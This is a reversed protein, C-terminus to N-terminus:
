SNTENARMQREIFPQLTASASAIHTLLTCISAVGLVYHLNYKCMGSNYTRNHLFQQM